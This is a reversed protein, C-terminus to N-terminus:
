EGGLTNPKEVGYTDLQVDIQVLMPEHKDVLSKKKIYTDRITHASSIAKYRPHIYYSVSYSSGVTPKKSLECISFDLNGNSDVLFDVGELLNGNVIAESSNNTRLLHLVGVTQEGSDLSLTRKAIPYSLQQIDGAKMVTIEKFIIFSDLALFLDGNHPLHEPLLTLKGQERRYDGISDPGGNINPRNEESNTLIAKVEQPSHTYVGKGHCVPCSSTAGLMTPIDTFSELNFNFDTTTSLRCPCESSQSWLFRMGKTQVLRRFEIIRFDVRNQNPKNLARPTLLM